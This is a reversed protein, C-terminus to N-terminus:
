AFPMPRKRRRPRERLIGRRDVFFPGGPFRGQDVMVLLHDGLHWGKMTRRDHRECFEKYVNSWGRGLHRGLWRELPALRDAFGRGEAPRVKGFVNGEEDFRLRRERRSRARRYMKSDSSRGGEVVTRALNRTAM